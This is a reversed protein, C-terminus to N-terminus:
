YYTFFNYKLYSKPLEIYPLLFLIVSYSLLYALFFVLFGVNLVYPSAHAEIIFSCRMTFNEVKHVFICLNMLMGEVNENM